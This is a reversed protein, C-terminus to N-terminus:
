LFYEPHMERTIIKAIDFSTDQTQNIDYDGYATWTCREGKFFAGIAAPHTCVGIYSYGEEGPAESNIIKFISGENVVIYNNVQMNDLNLLNM